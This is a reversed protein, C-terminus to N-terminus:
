SRHRYFLTEFEVLTPYSAIDMFPLLQTAWMGGVGSTRDIWFYVNSLGAWSM